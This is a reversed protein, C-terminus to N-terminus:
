GFMRLTEELAKMVKLVNFPEVVLYDVAGAAIARNRKVEADEESGVILMPLTCAEPGALQKVVELPSAVRLKTHVLILKARGWGEPGAGLTTLTPKVPGKVYDLSAVGLKRGLAEALRKPFAEGEALVLVVPDKDALLNAQTGLKPAEPAAKPASRGKPDFRERDRRMQARRAEMLWTRYRGLVHPDTDETFRLGWVKERYYAVKAALVLTADREHHLELHTKANLRLREPLTQKDDPPELELGDEGFATASGRLIDQAQTSFTCTLGRDPVYEALRHEELARLLRPLGIHCAEEGELRGHGQFEVTAEYPIGRDQLHMTMRAGPKLGWQGRTVDSIGLVIRGPGEALVPFTGRLHNLVLEVSGQAECLRQFAMRVEDPDELHPSKRSVGGRDAM